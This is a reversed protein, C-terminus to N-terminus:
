HRNFDWPFNTGPALPALAAALPEPTWYIIFPIPDAPAAAALWSTWWGPNTGIELARDGGLIELLAAGERLPATAIWSSCNHAGALPLNNDIKGNTFQHGSMNFGGITRRRRSLINGLYERLRANEEPELRLNVELARRRPARYAKRRFRPIWNVVARGFNYIEGDIRTHLHKAREKLPFSLNKNEALYAKELKVFDDPSLGHTSVVLVRRSSRVKEGRVTLRFRQDEVWSMHSPNFFNNM